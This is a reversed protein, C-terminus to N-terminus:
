YIVVTGAWKKKEAAKTRSTKMLKRMTIKSNNNVKVVVTPREKFTLLNNYLILKGIFFIFPFKVVQVHWNGEITKSLKYATKAHIDVLNTCIYM